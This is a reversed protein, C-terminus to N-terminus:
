FRQVLNVLFIWAEEPVGDYLRRNWEVGYRLETFPDRRLVQEYLVGGIAGSAFGKQWYGGGTLVLRQGFSREYDRWIVHEADLAVAMALDREPNFYPAGALSNTSAYVEPRVTLDFHPTDIVRQAFAGRVQRRRNGDSFDLGRVGASLWRSEHWAYRVWGGAANATIDYLLARLPTDPAFREANAGLTWHDDPTWTAAVSAGWESVSGTNSWGMVEVTADPLRYEAGAGYANRVARGEPPQATFREVAAVARWREAIPPSYLRATAGIGSGPASAASGKEDRSAFSARLEYMDHAALDRELRAVAANGPYTAALDAIRERAEPWERRRMASDAVAVKVGLDDPALSAAIRVEEEARRPWGRAAAVAGLNARLYGLAPAGDALPLLREWAAANMDAYNRAMAALIQADLWDTNPEPQPDRPLRRAPGDKAALADITAFAAAFDEDEVEAFFRGVIADRNAPDAAIVEEYATRAAAPRRLALLADGEAQRVYPPVAGYDARLAAIAALADAWRERDRLAVARDARLQRLVAADRQPAAEAEVILADLRALAADIGDFRRAPDRPVVQVGWRVGAAAQRARLGLPTPPGLAEAAAYPAGLEGLMEAAGTAAARDDPRLRRAEAYARLAAFRDGARRAVYARVLWADADVPRRALLPALAAEAEATRGADALAAALLRPWQPDSPDRRLSAAALRAADDFRRQDRYAGIMAARVYAPADPPGAEFADTAARARGAWALVVALDFRVRPDADAAALRQLAAIAEDYRGARAAAVAEERTQALAVLPVFLLAAVSVLFSPPFSLPGRL